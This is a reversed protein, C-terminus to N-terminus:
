FRCKFAKIQDDKWPGGIWKLFFNDDYDVQLAVTGQGPVKHILPNPVAKVVDGYNFSTLPYGKSEFDISWVDILATEIRCYVILKDTPYPAVRGDNGFADPYLLQNETKNYYSKDINCTFLKVYLDGAGYIWELVYM